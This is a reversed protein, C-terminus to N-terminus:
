VAWRQFWSCASALCRVCLYSVRCCGGQHRSCCWFRPSQNQRSLKLLSHIQSWRGIRQCQGTCPELAELSYFNDVELQRSTQERLWSRWSTYRFLERRWPLGSLGMSWDWRCLHCSCTRSLGSALVGQLSRRQLTWLSSPGSARRGAKKAGSRLLFQM